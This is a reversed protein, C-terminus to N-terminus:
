NIKWDFYCLVVFNEHFEKNYLLGKTKIVYGYGDKKEKLKGLFVQEGSDMVSIAVVNEPINTPTAPVWLLTSSATPLTLVEPQVSTDMSRALLTGIGGLHKLGLGHRYFLAVEKGRVEMNLNDLTVLTLDESLVGAISSDYPSLPAVNVWKGSSIAM